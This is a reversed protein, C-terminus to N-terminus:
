LETIFTNQNSRASVCHPNVAMITGNEFQIDSYFAVGKYFLIDKLYSMAARMIFSVFLHM